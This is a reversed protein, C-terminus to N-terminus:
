AAAKSYSLSLDLQAQDAEIRGLQRQEVTDNAMFLYRLVTKTQGPRSLRGQAQINLIRNDDLSMWFEIHCKEQLGDTGTGIAAITAVLIDYEDGFNDLKWKREDESMGGIFMRARYNNAQLRKTLMEAYKRSHTFILVPETKEVYLDALVELVAEAKTSKADDAFYVEQWPNGHEDLKDPHERVSPVALAIQRLRMMQVAPLEAILPHDDLWVLSDREFRDYVRRQAPTLDVGIEFVIPLDSYPTPFESKSPLSAWVTGPEREPGVKFKSFTDREKTLYKTVFPWFAPFHTPWLWRSVSWLGEIRNGAPTGSLGVKYEANSSTWLMASTQAKRNSAAHVEDAIVMDMPMSHWAYMRFRNWGCFYVGPVGLALDEFAATGAKTKDIRRVTVKGYSQREFTKKWGYFTNLPGIVLIVKAHSRLAAEVGVITKGSGRDGRCLHAKDRLIEEIAAEQEPRPVLPDLM